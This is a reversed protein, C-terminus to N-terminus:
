TRELYKTLWQQGQPWAGLNSGANIHGLAGADIFDAGWEAAM